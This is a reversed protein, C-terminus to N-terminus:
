HARGLQREVQPWVSRLAERGAAVLAHRGCQLFVRHLDIRIAVDARKSQEAALANTLIHMAQFAIQAVTSAPEEHPRYAVDIALVFTAGLERAADVPVPEVLAGDALRLGGVEVPVFFAAMATSAQVARAGDGRRILVRHGTALDTAVAGFRRPWREIPRAAFIADLRERLRENHFLGGRSWAFSGTGEWDEIRQLREIETASLGSAWLAGVLAGVSTGAVVKVEVGLAELEQLAGIHAIGHLSGSGLAIGFHPTPHSAPRTVTAPPRSAPCRDPALTFVVGEAAAAHLCALCLAIALRWRM